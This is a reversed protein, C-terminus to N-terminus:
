IIKVLFQLRKVNIRSLPWFSEKVGTKTQRGRRKSTELKNSTGGTMFIVYKFTNRLKLTDNVYLHNSLLNIDQISELKDVLTTM